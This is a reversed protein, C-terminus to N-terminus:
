QVVCNGYSGRKNTFKHSNYVRDVVMNANVNVTHSSGGDLEMSNEEQVDSPFMDLGEWAAGAADQEAAELLADALLQAGPRRWKAEDMADTMMADGGGAGGLGLGAGGSVVPSLFTCQYYLACLRPWRARVAHPLFFPPDGAKQKNIM